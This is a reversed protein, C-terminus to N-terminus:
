VISPTGLVFANTVNDAWEGDWFRKKNVGVQRELDALYEPDLNIKNDLPHFALRDVNIVEEATLKQGTEINLQKIFYKNVRIVKVTIITDHECPGTESFEIVM